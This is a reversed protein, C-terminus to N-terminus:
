NKTLSLDISKLVFHAIDALAAAPPQMPQGRLSKNAMIFPVPNTTHATLPHNHQDDWLQEAKGHDATILLTGNYQEVVTDYLIKLQTDICQIAKITSQLSGTHGVMDANAYNILYFHCPNYVLSTIVAHTIENASMAPLEAYSTTVQSPILIRQENDRPEEAGGGFFYTVHAYKETEAITFVTVKKEELQDLLTNTIQQREIVVPNKFLPHYRVATLLTLNHLPNDVQPWSKNKKSPLPQNLLLSTLQRIRDPRVNIIIVTDNDRITANAQLLTPPIYEDSINNAYNEQLVTQWPANGIKTGIWPM